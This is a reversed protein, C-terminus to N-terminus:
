VDESHPNNIRTTYRNAISQAVKRIEDSVQTNRPGLLQNIKWEGDHPNLELTGIRDREGGTGKAPGRISFIRANGNKCKYAYTGVCHHMIEGEEILLAGTSLPVVSMGDMYITEEISSKWTANADHNMRYNYRNAQVHWQRARGVLGTYQRRELVEPTEDDLNARIWDGLSYRDEEIFHATAVRDESEAWHKLAVRVVADARADGGTPRIYDFLNTFNGSSVLDLPMKAHASWRAFRRLVHISVTQHMEIPLRLLMRWEPKNLNGKAHEIIDKPRLEGTILGLKDQVFIASLPGHDIREMYELVEGNVVALNYADVTVDKGFLAKAYDLCEPDIFKKLVKRIQETVKKADIGLDELRRTAQQRHNEISEGPHTDRLSHAMEDLLEAYVHSWQRKLRFNPTGLLEITGNDRKRLEFQSGIKIYNPGQEIM